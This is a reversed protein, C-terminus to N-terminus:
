KSNSGNSDAYFRIYNINRIDIRLFKAEMSSTMVVGDMEPLVVWDGSNAASFEEAASTYVSFKVNGTTNATKNLGVYVLM